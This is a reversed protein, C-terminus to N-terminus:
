HETVLFQWDQCPRQQNNFKQVQGKNQYVYTDRLNRNSTANICLDHHFSFSIKATYPMTIKTPTTGNEFM